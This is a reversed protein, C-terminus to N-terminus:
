IIKKLIEEQKKEMLNKQKKTRDDFGLIHLIGHIIYLLIEKLFPNNYLVANRKAVKLCIFLEALIDKTDGLNFTLVDTSYNKKFFSKNLKRMMKENIFYVNLKISKIKLLKVILYIHRQLKNKDIYFKERTLNLIDIQM